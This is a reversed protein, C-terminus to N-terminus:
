SMGPLVATPAPTAPRSRRWVVVAGAGAAATLVIASSIYVTKRSIKIGKWGAKKEEGAAAPPAATEKAKTNATDNVASVGEAMRETYNATHGTATATREAANATREAAEATRRAYEMVKATDASTGIDEIVKTGNNAKVSETNMANEEKSHQPLECGNNKNGTEEEKQLHSVVRTEPDFRLGLDKFYKDREAAMLTVTLTNPAEEGNKRETM